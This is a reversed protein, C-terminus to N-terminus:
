PSFAGGKATVGLWPEIYIAGGMAFGKCCQLPGEAIRAPKCKDNSFGTGALGGEYKGQEFSLV